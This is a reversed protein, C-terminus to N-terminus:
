RADARLGVLVDAASRGAYQADELEFMYYGIRQLFPYDGYGLEYYFENLIRDRIEKGAILDNLNAKIKWLMFEEEDFYHLLTHKFEHQAGKQNYNFSFIALILDDDNIANLFDPQTYLWQEFEKLPIQEEITM